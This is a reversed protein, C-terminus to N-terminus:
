DYFGSSASNRRLSKTIEEQRVRQQEQEIRDLQQKRQSEKLWDDNLSALPPVVVPASVVPVPECTSTPATPLSEVLAEISILKVIMDATDTSTTERIDALYWMFCANFILQITICVIVTNKNMDDDKGLARYKWATGNYGFSCRKALSSLISSGNAYRKTSTASIISNNTAYFINKAPLIAM